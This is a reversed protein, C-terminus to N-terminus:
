AAHSELLFLPEQRGTVIRGLVRSKKMNLKDIMHQWADPAENMVDHETLGLRRLATRALALGAKVAEHGLGSAHIMGQGEPSLFFRCASASEILQRETLGDGAALALARKCDVAALAVVSALLMAPATLESRTVGIIPAEGQVYNEM